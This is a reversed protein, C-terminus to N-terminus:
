KDCEIIGRFINIFRKMAELEKISIRVFSNDLGRINHCNRILIKHSLFRNFLEDSNLKDLKILIFNTVSPYTHVKNCSALKDLVYGKIKHIKLAIEDTDMEILYRGVAESLSSVGWELCHKEIESILHKNQSYAYGLRLGALGYIKSFSRLVVINEKESFLLTAKNSDSMFPLYSEDIIFICNKFHEASKIIEDKPIYYGTPNNPNCIFALDYNTFDIENLKIEFNKSKDPFYFSLGLNYLNCYKEYDIYTPGIILAKKARNILCINKIIESTGVGVVFNECSKNFKDALTEKLFTSHPSPLLRLTDLKDKILSFVKQGVFPSINSSLDLVEDTHCGLIKAYFHINGGHTFNDM